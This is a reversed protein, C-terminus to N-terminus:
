FVFVPANILDEKCNLKYFVMAKRGNELNRNLDLGIESTSLTYVLQIKSTFIKSNRDREVHVSQNLSNVLIM